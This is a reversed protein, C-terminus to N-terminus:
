VYQLVRRCFSLAGSSNNHALYAVHLTHLLFCRFSLCRNGTQSVTHVVIGFMCYAQLRWTPQEHGKLPDYPCAIVAPLCWSAAKDARQIPAHLVHWQVMCAHHMNVHYGSILKAYALAYWHWFANYHNWYCPSDVRVAQSWTCLAIWAQQWQMACTDVQWATWLCPMTAWCTHGVVHQQQYM